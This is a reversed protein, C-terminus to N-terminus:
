KKAQICFKTNAAKKINKYSEVIKKKMHVSNIARIHIKFSSNYFLEKMTHYSFAELAVLFFTIVPSFRFEQFSSHHFNRM